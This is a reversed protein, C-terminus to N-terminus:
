LLVWVEAVNYLRISFTAWSEDCCSRDFRLLTLWLQNRVKKKINVEPETSTEFTSVTGTYTVRKGEGCYRSLHQATIGDHVYDTLDLYHGGGSLQVQLVRWQFQLDM